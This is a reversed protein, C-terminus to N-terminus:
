IKNCFSFQFAMVNITTIFYDHSRHARAHVDICDEILKLYECLIVNRVEDSIPLRNIFLDIIRECIVCIDVSFSHCPTLILSTINATKLSISWNDTRIQAMQSVFFPSASSNKKNSPYNLVDQTDRYGIKVKFYRIPYYIDAFFYIYVVM